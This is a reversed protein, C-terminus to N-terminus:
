KYISFGIVCVDDVQEVNGKWTNLFDTLLQQQENFPKTHITHLVEKLKKTTM